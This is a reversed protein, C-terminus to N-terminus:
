PELPTGSENQSTKCKQELIEIYNHPINMNKSEHFDKLKQIHTQIQKKDIKNNKKLNFDAFEPSLNKWNFAILQKEETELDFTDLPVVHDIHWINGHNEFSMKDKFCFMLWELLFETKCGIYEDTSHNKKISSLLRRRCTQKLKYINDNKLRERNKKNIDNRRKKFYENKDIIIDNVIKKIYNRGYEKECEKCKKRNPRFDSSIKIDGCKNCKYKINSEDLIKKKEKSIIRQQKGDDKGCEKCKNGTSAYFGGIEKINGCSVCKKCDPPIKETEPILKEKEKRIKERYKKTISASIKKYCTHCKGHDYIECKENCQNCIGVKIVKKSEQRNIISRKADFIKFCEHCRQSKFIEINQHCDICDAIKPNEKYKKNREKDYILFCNHCRQTKFIPCKEKCTICINEKPNDRKIKSQENYYKKYCDHCRHAKHIICTKKCNICEKENTTM